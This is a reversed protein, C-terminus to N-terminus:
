LEWECIFGPISSQVINKWGSMGEATIYMYSGKDKETQSTWRDHQM